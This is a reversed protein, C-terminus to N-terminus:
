KMPVIRTETLYAEEAETLDVEDYGTVMPQVHAVFSHGTTLLYIHVIVFSLIAYAAGVHLFVVPELLGRGTTEHWLGYFLYPIGSIWIAPFLVVKLLMYALAQLPNHKRWFLKKYPHEEGRFIGWAYYRAVATLGERTPLYHRWDGTTFLWFTAFLWLVMLSIAAVTHVVVASRFDIIQHIGRVAFGSFLLTMILLMQCWHWLREFRKYVMVTRTVM